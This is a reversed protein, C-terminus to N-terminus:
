PSTTACIKCDLAVLIQSPAKQSLHAYRASGSWNSDSETSPIGKFPRTRDRLAAARNPSWEEPGAQAGAGHGQACVLLTAPGGRYFEVPLQPTQGGPCLSPLQRPHLAQLSAGFLGQRRAVPGSAAEPLTKPRVSRYKQAECAAAYCIFCHVCVTIYAYKCFFAEKWGVGM